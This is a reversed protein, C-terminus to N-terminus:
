SRVAPARGRAFWWATAADGHALARAALRLRHLSRYRPDRVIRRRRELARPRLAAAGGFPRAPSFVMVQYEPSGAFVDFAEFRLLQLGAAAAEAIVQPLEVQEDVIQLTEDHAEHRFRTAEPFPTSVFLLGNPALRAALAEVFEQREPAPIHELVDFLTMLDYRDGPLADLGGVAFTVRPALRRAAAIAAASFDVGTVRGYRRLHDTVVGAGCGIDAIELDSRGRLLDDILLKLQEHRLNPELWDRLGVALAFDEYFARAEDHTPRREPGSM